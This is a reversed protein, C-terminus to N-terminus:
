GHGGVDQTCESVKLFFLCCCKPCNTAHLVHMLHSCKEGPEDDEDSSSDDEGESSSSSDSGSSSSSDADDFAHSPSDDQQQQGAADSSDDTSSPGPSGESGAAAGGQDISSEPAAAPQQLDSGPNQSAERAESSSSLTDAAQAPSLLAGSTLLPSLGISVLLARRSAFQPSQQLSTQLLHKRKVFASAQISSQQENYAQLLHRSRAHRCKPPRQQQVQTDAPNHQYGLRLYVHSDNSSPLLRHMATTCVTNTDFCRWILYLSDLQHDFLDLSLTSNCVICSEHRSYQRAWM